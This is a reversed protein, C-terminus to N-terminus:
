LAGTYCNYAIFVILETSFLAIAFDGNIWDVGFLRAWLCICLYLITIM